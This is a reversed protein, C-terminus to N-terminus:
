NKQPRKWADINRQKSRAVSLAESPVETTITSGAAITANDGIIVPAVLASNSGIFAGAGITTKHKNVGDYNCTITGAGVNAKSGVTTDGVYSLHNIKAGEGLVTNKTEVFNGIKADNEVCTGPRIRAFPGINANEKITAKDIVSHSLIRTNKGIQSNKVICNAEIIVGDALRVEGEFIVNPEVVVDSGCTVTGRIDLRAPDTLTVGAKLLVLAQNHQYIREVDALQVRDNVGLTEYNHSPHVGSIAINAAAAAGIIDTLYYEGQANNASLTPLVSKLFAGPASLIGTNIEIIELQQENADKQEVIAVVEGSKRVIRGYGFPEDMIATLLKVPSKEAMLASLTTTSILPVDGYLVLVDNEDEVNGLAQLVAHGTGLQETQEVWLLSQDTSYHAKIQEAEHGIVITISAPQLAKAATIVHSLMPQGAVPHLVKPKNSKMRSGKGAALIVIDLAM